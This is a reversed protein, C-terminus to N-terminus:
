NLPLKYSDRPSARVDMQHILLGHSTALSLLVCIITLSTVPSYTDFFDKDKNQTYGKGVLRTEYKNITGDPRLKKKFVWKCGVHKCSHPRDILEWTGNSLIGDM